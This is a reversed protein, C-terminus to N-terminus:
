ITLGQPCPHRESGETNKACDGDYKDFLPVVAIFGLM